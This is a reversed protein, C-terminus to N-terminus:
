IGQRMDEFGADERGTADIELILDAVISNPNYSMGARKRNYLWTLQELNDAIDRSLLFERYRNKLCDSLHEEIM